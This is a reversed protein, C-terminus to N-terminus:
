LCPRIKRIPIYRLRDCVRCTRSGNEGIRINAGALLHGHNCHTKRACQAAIGNGRLINDRMTKVSLHGPNVCSPNNCIHDITMGKPILGVHLEYSVRHAYRMKWNNPGLRVGIMGYPLHGPPKYKLKVGTWPWCGNADPVGVKANFREILPINAM